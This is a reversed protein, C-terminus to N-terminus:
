SRSSASKMGVVTYLLAYPFRHCLRRRVTGLVPHGAHPHDVVADVCRRADTLFARGLGPQELEYYQAAENLEREALENFTVRM